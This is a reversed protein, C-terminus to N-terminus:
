CKLWEEFVEQGYAGSKEPHFQVAWLNGIQIAAAFPGNYDSVASVIARNSPEVHYSNVFYAYGSPFHRSNQPIVRNWGIQPVKRAQFRVGRGKLVALGEIDPNEESNEFLVQMGVCIGLFPTQKEILVRIPNVLGRKNLEEMINGFNGVGPLILRQSTLIESPDSSIISRYGIRTLMKVVSQLNGSGLDIITTVGTV